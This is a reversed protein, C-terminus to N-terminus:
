NADQENKRQQQLKEKLKSVVNITKNQKVPDIFEPLYLDDPTVLLSAALTLLEDANLIQEERMIREVKRTRGVETMEPFLIESAKEKSLNHAAMIASLSVSKMM